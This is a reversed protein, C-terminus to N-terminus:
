NHNVVPRYCHALHTKRGRSAGNTCLPNRHGRKSEPQGTMRLQTESRSRPQERQASTGLSCVANDGEAERATATSQSSSHPLASFPATTVLKSHPQLDLEGGQRHPMAPVRPRTPLAPTSLERAPYCWFTQRPAPLLTMQHSLCKQSLIHTHGQASFHM